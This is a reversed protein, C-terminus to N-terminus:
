KDIRKMTPNNTDWSNTNSGGARGTVRTNSLLREALLDVDSVDDAHL